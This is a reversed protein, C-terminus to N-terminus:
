IDRALEDSSVPARRARQGLTLALTRKIACNHLRRAVGAACLQPAGCTAAAGTM